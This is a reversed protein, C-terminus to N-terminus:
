EAVPEFVFASVIMNLTKVRKYVITNDAALTVEGLLVDKVDSNDKAIDEASNGLVDSFITNSQASMDLVNDNVKVEINCVNDTAFFAKKEYNNKYADMYAREYMKFKGGAPLKFTFSASNGDSNLKFAGTSPDTKWSSGSALQMNATKVDIVYENVSCASCTCKKVAADTAGEITLAEGDGFSHGLPKGTERTAKCMTCEELGARTCTAALAPDNSPQYNHEKKPITYDVFRGCVTCKKYGRGPLACTAEVPTRTADGTSEVLVHDEMKGMRNGKSDVKYHGDNVGMYTGEEVTDEPDKGDSTDTKGNNKENTPSGFCGSIGLSLLLATLGFLKTKKM